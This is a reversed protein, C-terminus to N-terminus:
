REEGVDHGDMFLPVTEIMDIPPHQFFGTLIFDNVIRSEDGRTQAQESSVLEIGRLFPSAELADMFRTLAVLNGTRGTITFGTQAGTDRHRISELWTYPPLARSIEDLIHPWIYRGADIDQIIVLKQAITDQRAQLSAQTEILRAYRASDAAARESSARLDSREMRVDLFMWGTVLPGLIWAAVVFLAIRDMGPMSQPLKLAFKRSSSRTRKEPGPLLNIEIM